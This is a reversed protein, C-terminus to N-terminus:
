NGHNDSNKDARNSVHFESDGGPNMQLYTYFPDQYKSNMYVDLNPEMKHLIKLLANRMIAIEDSSVDSMMSDMWDVTREKVKTGLEEGKVTLHIRYNRSGPTERDDYALGKECLVKVVRTTNAADLDLFQSLDKQTMPGNMALAILYVAHASTLGYESVEETMHRRMSMNMRDLFIPLYSNWYAHFGGYADASETPGAQPDKKSVM